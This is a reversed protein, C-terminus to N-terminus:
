LLIRYMSLILRQLQPALAGVNDFGAINKNDAFFEAPSKRQVAADEGMEWGAIRYCLLSEKIDGREQIGKWFFFTQPSSAFECIEYAIPM